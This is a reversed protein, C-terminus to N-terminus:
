IYRLMGETVNRFKSNSMTPEPELVDDPSSNSGDFKMNKKQQQQIKFRASFNLSKPQSIMKRDLILSEINTWGLLIYIRAHTSLNLLRKPLM